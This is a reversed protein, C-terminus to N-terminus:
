FLSHYEPHERLSALGPDERAREVLGPNFRLAARFADMAQETQRAAAYYIALGYHVRSQWDPGEDLHFLPSAVQEQMEVALTANGQGIYYQALHGLSHNCGAGVIFWWVLEDNGDAQEPAVLVEDPTAQTQERLFRHAQWSGKLVDDDWRTVESIECGLARGVFPRLTEASLRELQPM